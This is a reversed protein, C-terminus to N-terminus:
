VPTRSEKPSIPNATRRLTRAQLSGPAADFVTVAGSTRRTLGLIINFLTTKGAGNHGVLVVREGREVCLTVHSVADLTGYRKCADNLALVPGNM